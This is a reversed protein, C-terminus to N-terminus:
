NKKFLVNGEKFGIGNAMIFEIVNGILKFVTRTQGDNTKRKGQELAGIVAIKAGKHLYKEAVETMRNFCVAKIWGTKNKGSKFALSFTAVPKGESSYFVEPDAGLNGSIIGQNM